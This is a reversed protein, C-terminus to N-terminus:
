RVVGKARRGAANRRRPSRPVPPAAPASAGLLSDLKRILEGSTNRARRKKDRDNKRMLDIRSDSSLGDTAGPIQSFDNTASSSGERMLIDQIEKSSQSSDIGSIPTDYQGINETLEFQEVETNLMQVAEREQLQEAMRAAHAAVQAWMEANWSFSM